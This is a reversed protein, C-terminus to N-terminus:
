GSIPNFGNLYVDIVYIWKEVEIPIDKDGNTIHDDSNLYEVSPSSSSVNTKKDEIDISPLM